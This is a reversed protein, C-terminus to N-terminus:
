ILYIPPNPQTQRTQFKIVWVWGLKSDFNKKYCLGVWWPRFVSGVRHTPNPWTLKSPNVPQSYVRPALWRKWKKGLWFWRFFVLNRKNFHLNRNPLQWVNWSEKFLKKRQKGRWSVTGRERWRMSWSLTIRLKINRNNLVRRNNM